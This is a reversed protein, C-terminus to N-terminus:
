NYDTFAYISSIHVWISCISTCSCLGSDGWGLTWSRRGYNLDDASRAFTTFYLVSAITYFFQCKRRQKSSRQKQQLKGGKSPRWCGLSVSTASRGLLFSPPPLERRPHPRLSLLRDSLAGVLSLSNANWLLLPCRCRPPLLRTVLAIPFAFFFSFYTHRVGSCFPTVSRSPRVSQQTFNVERRWPFPRSEVFPILISKWTIGKDGNCIM